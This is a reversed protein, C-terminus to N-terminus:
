WEDNTAQDMMYKDCHGFGLLRWQTLPIFLACFWLYMSCDISDIKETTTTTKSFNEEEAGCGHLNNENMKTRM